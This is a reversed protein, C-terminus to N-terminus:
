DTVVTEVKCIVGVLRKRQKNTRNGRRIRSSWMLGRCVAVAAPIFCVEGLFFVGSFTKQHLTNLASLKLVPRHPYKMTKM